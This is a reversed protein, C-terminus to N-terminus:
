RKNIIIKKEDMTSLGFQNIIILRLKIIFGLESIRSDMCNLSDIVFLTLRQFCFLRPSLFIDLQCCWGHEIRKTRRTSLLRSHQHRISEVWMKNEKDGQAWIKIYIIIKHRKKISEERM